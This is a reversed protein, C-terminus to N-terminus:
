IEKKKNYYIKFVYHNLGQTAFHSLLESYKLDLLKDIIGNDPDPHILTVKYANYKLYKTDDAYKKDIKDLSYLICPYVLKSPPQFYVNKSGLIERLKYEFAIRGQIM